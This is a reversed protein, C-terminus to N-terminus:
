YLFEIEHTGHNFYIQWIRFDAANFERQERLALSKQCCELQYLVVDFCANVSKKSPMLFEAIYRVLDDPLFDM